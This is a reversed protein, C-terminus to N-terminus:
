ECGVKLVARLRALVLPGHPLMRRVVGLRHVKRRELGTLQRRRRGLYATCQVPAIYVRREGHVGPAVQARRLRWTHGGLATAVSVPVVTERAHQM